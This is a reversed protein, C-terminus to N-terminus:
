NPVAKGVKDATDGVKDAARSIADNKKNESMTAQYLFYGGVIVAILLVLGFVMTAFGGGGKREIIVTQPREDAM